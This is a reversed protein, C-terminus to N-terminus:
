RSPLELRGALLDDILEIVGLGEAARTIHTPASTGLEPLYHEINRVGASLAFRGPEFLSADNGSDGVAVADAALVAAPDAVGRRRLLALVGNAKSRGGATGTADGLDEFYFHIHVSSALVRGRGESQEHVEHRLTALAAAGEAGGPLTRVVTHDTLRFPDDATPLLAMSLRRAVRQRLDLLRPRVEAQDPALLQAPVEEHAHRVPAERDISRPAQPAERDISRPAQPAERDFWAGGNEVIVAGIGPLYGHLAAGWGASRGTNLIVEIGAAAARSLSLLVDCHLRGAVTLTDDVDLILYRPLM